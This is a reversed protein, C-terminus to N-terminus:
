LIPMKLRQFALFLYACAGGFGLFTLVAIIAARQPSTKQQPPVAWDVVQIVTAGRAEDLVAADYQRLLQGYLTQQFKVQEQAEIYATGASPVDKMGLHGFGSSTGHGEMQVEENQLTTLEGEVLKVEPNRDASYSRLASLEVQKQAIQARIGALGSIIATAQAEPYVLGKSQEVQLLADEAVSLNQRQTNLQDEFFERRRAAETISLSKTLTRLGDVYANAIAAAQDKKSDTVSIAILNSKESEITTNSALKDRAFELDAPDSSKSLKFKAVISDAITRSKLLGVYLANPDTLMLTSVTRANTGLMPLGDIFSNASPTQTPPMIQAVATYRVPLIFSIIVGIAMSAGTVQAILRKRAFFYRAMAGISLAHYGEARDPSNEETSTFEHLPISTEEDTASMNQDNQQM